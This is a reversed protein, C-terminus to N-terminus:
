TSDAARTVDIYFGECYTARLWEPSGCCVLKGNALFSIRDGLASAEDMEMTTTFIIADERCQMIIEWAEKRSNHVMGRTPEDLLLITPKGLLAM